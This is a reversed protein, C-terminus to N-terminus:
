DRVIRVEKVKKNKDIRIVLWESDISFYSREPGLWYVFDWEKYKNTKTSPGLLSRIEKESMKQLCRSSVLDDAMELRPAYSSDSSTEAVKWKQSNFSGPMGIRNECAATVVLIGLLVTFSYRLLNANM